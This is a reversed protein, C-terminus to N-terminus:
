GRRPGLSGHYGKLPRPTLGRFFEHRRWHIGEKLTRVTIPPSFNGIIREYQNQAEQYSLNGIARAIVHYDTLEILNTFLINRDALLNLHLYSHEYTQFQKM